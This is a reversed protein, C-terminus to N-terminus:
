MLYEIHNYDSFLQCKKFEGCMLSNILLTFNFISYVSLSIYPSQVSMTYSIYLSNFIIIVLYIHPLIYKIFYFHLSTCRPLIYVTVNKFKYLVLWHNLMLKHPNHWEYNYYMTCTCIKYVRLNKGELAWVYFLLYLISFPVNTCRIM